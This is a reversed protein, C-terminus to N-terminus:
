GWTPMGSPNDQGGATSVTVPPGPAPTYQSGGIGGATQGAGFTNRNLVGKASGAGGNPQTVGYAQTGVAPLFKATNAHQPLQRPTFTEPAFGGGHPPPTIRMWSTRQQAPSVRFGNPDVVQPGLAIHNLYAKVWTLMGRTAPSNVRHYPNVTEVPDTYHPDIPANPFFGGSFDSPPVSPAGENGYGISHGAEPPSVWHPQARPEGETETRPVEPIVESGSMPRYPGLQPGTLIDVNNGSASPAVASPVARPVASGM